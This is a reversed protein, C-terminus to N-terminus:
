PCGASRISPMSLASLSSQTPSAAADYLSLAIAFPRGRPAELWNGARATPAITLTVNGDQARVVTTSMIEHPGDGDRIIAGGPRYLSVTWLRAVPFAGEITYACAGDLPAGASDKHAIFVIGEGNALPAEAQRALIARAYPDADAGGTKPWAVWPGSQAAGFIFDRGTTVWTAVLGICVGSAAAIATKAYASFPAGLESNHRGIMFNAM